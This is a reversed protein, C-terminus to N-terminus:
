HTLTTHYIPLACNKKTQLEFWAYKYSIGSTRPDSLGKTERRNKKTPHFPEIIPWLKSMAEGHLVQNPCPYHSM